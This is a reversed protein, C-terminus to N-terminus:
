VEYPIGLFEILSVDKADLFVRKLEVAKSGEVWEVILQYFAKGEKSTSKKIRVNLM